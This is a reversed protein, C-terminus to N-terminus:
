EKRSLFAESAKKKRDRKYFPEFTNSAPFSPLNISTFM